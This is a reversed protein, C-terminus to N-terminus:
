NVDIWPDKSDPNDMPGVAACVLLSGDNKLWFVHGKKWLFARSSTKQSIDAMKNLDWHILHRMSSIIAISCDLDINDRLKGGEPCFPRLKASM